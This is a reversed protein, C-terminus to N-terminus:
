KILLNSQDLMAVKMQVIQDNTKFADVLKRVTDAEGKVVVVELCHDGDIHTHLFTSTIDGYRHQIDSILERKAKREFIMTITAVIEGEIERLSKDETMFTRLAQRVIESRNAFGHEEIYSDVDGLLKDPVSISIVNLKVV